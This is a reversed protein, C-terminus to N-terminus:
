AGAKKMFEDGLSRYERVIGMAVDTNEMSLIVPVGRKPAMSHINANERVWPFIYYKENTIENIFHANSQIPEGNYLTVMTPVVGLMTPAIVSFTEDEIYKVYDNHEVVYKSFNRNLQEIGLTSLYDMKAPVLFSDSATLANKVVSGFNPPCDILIIDYVDSLESIGKRLINHTKLFNRKLHYENHGGLCAALNTDINILELHSSILGMKIGQIEIPIALSQLTPRTSAERIVSRFFNNLTKDRAYRMRWESSNIFSFTLNAQPDLDIMLVKKGKSAVHTAINATITTKGVGGKYNIISVVKM